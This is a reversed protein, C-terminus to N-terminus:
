ANRKIDSVYRDKAAYLGTFFLVVAAILLLFLPLQWSNTFGYLAGFLPPGCAAVFYGVSQAMGSLQASETVSRTRLVFFMMALTFALGVSIGVLLVAAVIYETQWVIIMMLGGLLLVFTLWILPTQHKMKDALLPGILMMPVQGMQVYSLMWGAENADMGWSQLMAPLWAAFVYFIVSQLGMFISIQWALRSKWITHVTKAKPQATAPKEKPVMPLWGFFAVLALVGWIGISGKWGLGGIKGLSISYGVALASTLNMSVLYTGTVLGVKNPFKMKIFAPMLVNGITIAIGIFASGLFLLFINGASRTFLGLALLLLSYLLLKELGVIRSVRPMFTSFLSFCILPIATVLGVLTPTLHLQHTMELIVPGVSTIPARLNAAILIISFVIIAAKWTIKKNVLEM